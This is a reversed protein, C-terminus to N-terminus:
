QFHQTRKSELHERLSRIQEGIEGHKAELAGLVVEASELEHTHREYAERWARVSAEEEKIRSEALLIRLENREDSLLKIYDIVDQRNFGTASKRFKIVRNKM